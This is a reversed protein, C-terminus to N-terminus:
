ESDEVNEVNEEPTEKKSKHENIVETTGEIIGEYVDKAFKAVIPGKEKFSVKIKASSSKFITEAKPLAKSCGEKVGNLADKALKSAKEKTDLDEDKTTNIIEKTINSVAKLIDEGTHITNIVVEKVKETVTSKEEIM